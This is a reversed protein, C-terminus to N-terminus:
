NLELQQKWVEPTSAYKIRTNKLQLAGFHELQVDEFLHRM